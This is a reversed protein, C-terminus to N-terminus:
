KVIAPWRYTEEGGGTLMVFAADAPPLARML